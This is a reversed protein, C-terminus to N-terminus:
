ASEFPIDLLDEYFGGYRGVVPDQLLHVELIWHRPQGNAHLANMPVHNDPCAYNETTDGFTADHSFEGILHACYKDHAYRYGHEASTKMVFDFFHAGTMDPQRLYQQKCITFVSELAVNLKLKEEDDGLVFSRGFDAEVRKFVPGLDLFCIDGEQLPVDPREEFIPYQTNEGHRPLRQHWHQRTGYDTEALKFVDKEVQSETRGPALIGNAGIMEFLDVATRRADTLRQM